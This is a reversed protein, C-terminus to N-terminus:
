CKTLASNKRSPFVLILILLAVLSEIISYPKNSSEVFERQMLALFCNDHNIKKLWILKQIFLIIAVKCTDDDWVM